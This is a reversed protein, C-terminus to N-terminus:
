KTRNSKQKPSLPESVLNAKFSLEETVWIRPNFAHAVEVMHHVYVCSPFGGM